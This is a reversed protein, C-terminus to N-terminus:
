PVIKVRCVSSFVAADLKCRRSRAKRDEEVHGTRGVNRDALVHNHLASSRFFLFLLCNM